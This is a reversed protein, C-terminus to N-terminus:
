SFSNSFPFRGEFFGKM